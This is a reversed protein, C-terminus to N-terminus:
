PEFSRIVGGLCREIGSRTEILLAGDEDLDLCTGQITRGYTDVEIQQGSLLHYARWQDLLERPHTALQELRTELHQLCLILVETLDHEAALADCLAIAREAVEGGASAVSNNVNVGVGIVARPPQHRPLEILIGSLKKANLYVDNPWKLSFDALPALQELAQCIALGVTLSMQPIKDHPLSDLSVVVSFTLAGAASWWQNAGRGRGATQREALVLLPTLLDPEEARQIAHSNTSDLEWHFDIERVFTEDRLRQLHFSQMAEHHREM